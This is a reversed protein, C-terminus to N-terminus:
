CYEWLALNDQLLQMTLVADSRTGEESSSLATTANTLADKATAIAHKTDQRVEHLFVSFNLALGLFVPHESPLNTLAENMGLRYAQDAAEAAKEKADGSAFEALYRYYDGKMKLYFTKTDVGATAGGTEAGPLLVKDLLGLVKSCIAQLETEVKSKYGMALSANSLRGEAEEQQAVGVAVRVAHRRETLANKFASSLMDREESALPVGTLARDSMHESMDDYREVKEAVKALVISRNEEM